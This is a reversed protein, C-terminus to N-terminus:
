RPRDDEDDLDRTQRRDSSSSHNRFKEEAPVVASLRDLDRKSEEEHKRMIKKSSHLNWLVRSGFALIRFMQYMGLVQWVVPLRLPGGAAGPGGLVRGLVGSPWVGGSLVAGKLVKLLLFSNCVFAFLYMMPIYDLDAMCILFGESTCLLPYLGAAVAVWPALDRAGAIVAADTSFFRGAVLPGLYAAVAVSGALAGAVTFMRRVLPGAGAVGRVPPREPTETGEGKEENTTPRGYLVLPAFSQTASNVADGPSTLGFYIQNGIQHAALAVNGFFSAVHTMSMYFAVKFIFTPLGSKAYKAFQLTDGVSPPTKISESLRLPPEGGGRGTEEAEEKEAASSVRFLQFLLVVATTWEAFVTAWAAGRIGMGFLFIMLLDGTLNVFSSALTALFPTRTDKRAMLAAKCCLTLMAAPTSWARIRVYSFAAPIVELSRKSNLTLLAPLGLVRLLSGLVIGFSAGLWLSNSLVRTSASRNGLALWKGYLNLTAPYMFSCLYTLCVVLQTAPSMAALELSSNLGVCAADISTILSDQLLTVTTGGILWLIETYSPLGAPTSPSAPSFSSASSSASSVFVEGEGRGDGESTLIANVPVGGRESRRGSGVEPRRRRQRGGLASSSKVGRLQGTSCSTLFAGLTSASSSSWHRDASVGDRRSRQTAPVSEFTSEASVGGVPTASVALAWVLAVRRLRKSSGWSSSSVQVQVCNGNKRDSSSHCGRCLVDM